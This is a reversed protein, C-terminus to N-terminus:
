LAAPPLLTLGQELLNLRDVHVSKAISKATGTGSVSPASVTAPELKVCLRSCTGYPRVCSSVSPSSETM